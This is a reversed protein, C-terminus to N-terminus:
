KIVLVKRIQNFIGPARVRIFYVGRAVVRGNENRGNWKLSYTGKSQNGLKLVRVVDSNLDYVVISVPGSKNITYLLATTEGHYPNIVNNLITVNNNQLSVSQITSMFTEADYVRFRSNGVPYVSQYCYLSGIKFLFSFIKGNTFRDDTKIVFEWKTGGANRGTVLKSSSTAPPDWYKANNTNSPIDYYLEPTGTFGTYNVYINATVVIDVPSIGQDGSFDTVQWDKGKHVYDEMIVNTFFNIGIDSINYLTAPNMASNSDNVINVSNITDAVIHERTLNQNLTLIFETRPNTTSIDSIGTIATGGGFNDTYNFNSAALPSSSSDKVATNFEVYIQNFGAVARTESIVPLTGGGFIWHPSPQFVDNNGSNISSIATIDNGSTGAVDSDQVDVGTVTQPSAVQIHWIVTSSTSRLKIENGTTGTLTLTGNVIQTTGATFNIQKGATTCSLSEFTTSGSIASTGSGNFIVTSGTNTFNGGARNWNGSLNITEGTADFTGNSISLNGDITLAAGVTFTSAGSITLNNYTWTKITYPGLTGSYDVTGANTSPTTITESGLLNLTGNLTFTNSVTLNLGTSYVTGNADVTLNNATRNIDLVPSHNNSLSVDPITVNDTSNPVYGLSWNSATGWDTDTNGNWTINNVGFVWHPNPGTDDNNGGNISGSATINGGSADDVNSYQVDVNTVAQAADVRINWSALADSRLKIKNAASAGGTLTLTGSIRQTTGNAFTIQKGATTCSFNNFVTSGSVTSTAATTFNVTGTASLSGGSNAWNGSVNITNGNDTLTGGQLTLNTCSFSGSIQKNVDFRVNGMNQANSTITAGATTDFIILGNNTLTSINYNGGINTQSSSATMSTITVAGNIDINGAGGTLTGLTVNGTVNITGAGGKVTKAGAAPSTVNGNIQVNGGGTSDLTGNCVLTSATISNINATLTAGSNITLGNNITIDSQMNRTGSNIVLNNFAGAAVNLNYTNNLTVTGGAATLNATTFGKNVTTTSSSETFNTNNVNDNITIAASNGNFTTVTVDGTINVTGSGCNFTGAGSIGNSSVTIGGTNGTVTGDDVVGSSFTLLSSGSTSITGTNEVTAANTFTMSGNVGSILGANDTTGTVALTQAGSLNFQGGSVQLTGGISSNGAVTRNGSEIILNYYNNFKLNGSYGTYYDVTSTAAAIAAQSVNASLTESGQLRLTGNNTFTGNVTLNEGNIDLTAGNDITLNNTTALTAGALSNTRTGGTINLNYFFGTNVEEVNGTGTFNVTSNSENFTGGGPHIWNGSVNITGTTMNVVGGASIDFVGTSMTNANINLTGGSMTFSTLANAVPINVDFNVTNGGISASDGPNQGPYFGNNPTWNAPNSWNGNGANWAYNTPFLYVPIFLFLLIIKKRM